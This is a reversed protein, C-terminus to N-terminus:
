YSVKMYERTEHHTATVDYVRPHTYAVPSRKLKETRGVRLESKTLRLLVHCDWEPGQGM